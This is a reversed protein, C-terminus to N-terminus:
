WDAWSSTNSEGAVAFTLKDQLVLRLQQDVNKLLTRSGDSTKQINDVKITSTM